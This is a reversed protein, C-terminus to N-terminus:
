VIFLRLVNLVIGIWGIIYGAKALITKKHKNQINAFFVAILAFILGAIQVALLLIGLLAFFFSLVGWARTGKKFFLSYILWMTGLLVFLVMFVAFGRFDDDEPPTPPKLFFEKDPEVDVLLPISDVLEGNNMVNITLEKDGFETLANFRIDFRNETKIVTTGMGVIELTYTDPLPQLTTIFPPLLTNIPMVADPEGVYLGIGEILQGGGSILHLKGGTEGIYFNVFDAHYEGRTADTYTGTSPDAYLYSGPQPITPFGRLSTPCLKQNAYDGECEQCPCDCSRTQYGGRCDVDNPSWETCTFKCEPLVLTEEWESIINNVSQSWADLRTNDAACYWTCDKEYIFALTTCENRCDAVQEQFKKVKRQHRSACYQKVEEVTNYNTIEAPAEADLCGQVYDNSDQVYSEFPRPKIRTVPKDPEDQKGGVYVIKGQNLFANCEIQSLKGTQGRGAWCGDCPVLYNADFRMDMQRTDLNVFNQCGRSQAAALNVSGVLLVGFILFLLLIRKM